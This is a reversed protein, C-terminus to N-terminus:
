IPKEIAGASFIVSMANKQPIPPEANDISIGMNTVKKVIILVANRGTSIIEATKAIITGNM